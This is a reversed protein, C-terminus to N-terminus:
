SARVVFHPDAPPPALGGPKGPVVPKGRRSTASAAERQLRVPGAYGPQGRREDTLCQWFEAGAAHSSGSREWASAPWPLHARNPHRSSRTSPLGQWKVRRLGSSPPGPATLSGLVVQGASSSGLFYTGQLFPSDASANGTGDYQSLKGAVEPWTSGLGLSWARVQFAVTDGAQYPLPLDVNGGNFRGPIASSASYATPTLSSYASGRPGVFLGVVFQHAPAFAGTALPATLNQNTTLLTSSTNGFFVRGQDAHGVLPAAALMLATLLLITRMSRRLQFNSM